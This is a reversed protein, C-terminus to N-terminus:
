KNKGSEFKRERLRKIEREYSMMQKETMDEAEEAGLRRVSGTTDGSGSSNTVGKNNEKGQEISLGKKLLKELTMEKELGVKRLAPESTGQIIRDRIAVDETYRNGECACKNETSAQTPATYTKTCTCPGLQCM